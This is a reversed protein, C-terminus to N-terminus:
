QGGAKVGLINTIYFEVQNKMAEAGKNYADVAPDDLTNDIKVMDLLGKLMGALNELKKDMSKEKGRM